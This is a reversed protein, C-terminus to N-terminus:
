VRNSYYSSRETFKVINNMMTVTEVPYKGVASEASLMVYDTGDLIANAVDTVEARTPRINETMSELMQTAVIVFKGAQNCKKIIEKQIIPIEYLPLSVGMDGRAVM